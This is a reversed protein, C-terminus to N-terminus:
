IKSKTEYTQIRRLIEAEKVATEETLMQIRYDLQSLKISMLFCRFLLLFIIVLFIFNAPSEIELMSAFIIVISPFAGMFILLVSIGVWWVMDMVQVQSKRIKRIVYACTFVSSVFLIGRLYVSM